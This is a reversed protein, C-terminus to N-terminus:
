DHAIRGDEHIDIPQGNFSKIYDILMQTENKECKHIIKEPCALAELGESGGAVFTNYAVKFFKDNSPNQANLPIQTGDQKVLVVDKVKDDTGIRYRLGSVQLAGTRHYKSTAQVASNLVDIIDKESLKYVNVDNYFPMLDMIDRDTVPGAPLSARIGGMNNFVIDADSYKMYADSLFASLPSEELVTEPKSKVDHAIVGIVEPAGLSIDEMMKIALNEPEKDLNKVENKAQIIRGENDYVVDLVGYSHGNKGAQTVIVWEGRPSKFLNKGYVLGELTDHSHGDNIVDIGGVRQALQVSADKGLHSVLKIINVGQKELKEVEKRVANETEQLNLIKIDQTGEKSQTSLRSFLDVPVLGIYGIKRGNEEVIMSSAYRGAKIDDNLPFAAASNSDKPQMNLALTKFKAFDLMHSLGIAGNDDMNHNGPAAATINCMNMMKVITINKDRNAGVWEDGSLVVDGTPNELKFRDSVTKFKRFAKFHGHFDNGYLTKQRFVGTSNKATNGASANFTQNSMTQNNQGFKVKSTYFNSFNNNIFMYSGASVTVPIFCTLSFIQGITLMQKCFVSM